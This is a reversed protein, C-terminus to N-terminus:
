KSKLIYLPPPPPPAPLSNQLYSMSLTDTIKCRCFSVKTHLLKRTIESCIHLSKKPCGATKIHCKKSIHIIFIKLPPLPPPHPPPYRHFTSSTPRYPTMLPDKWFCKSVPPPYLCFHDTPPSPTKFTDGGRGGRFIKIM